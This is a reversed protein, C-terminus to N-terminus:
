VIEAQQMVRGPVYPDRYSSRFVLEQMVAILRVIRMVTIQFATYVPLYIVFRLPIHRSAVVAAAFAAIDLVLYGVLTASIITAAFEGFYLWLWVLYVPFALALVVQFGIVDCLALADTVRFTSQRPDLAGRFKRAWITILGRDWRLRQAILASVTEPVQTLARAEPAFRIRWGARRLKMTLDADEGVEVDQGGVAEVATRRFAGFAGSVISLMGLLDAIRRGVSIGIAYEIAQHRTVLTASANRAGLNGSVAGVRPDAFHRLILAFADRDFTTDVDAIIVIDGKCVSLGLNVGASKGGRLTLRLLEDIKHERQLKRAIGAMGDTSGDDVVIVQMRGPQGAITQEALAEICPALAQAENHGVLVVSVTLDSEPGTRPLWASSTAVLLAGITYRPIELLTTYWFLLIISTTDLSQLFSLASM